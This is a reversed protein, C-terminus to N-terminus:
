IISDKINKNKIITLLELEYVVTTYPHIIGTSSGMKGFALQSPIIFKTKAGENMLSIANELGKIVQGEQGLVFQLPQAYKYTSEFEVGNLFYGKYHIIVEDGPVACDGAGQKIPLYYMGGSEMSFYNTNCTDLFLKLKNIENLEKDKILLQYKNLEEVYEEKNLIRHLTVDMKVVDGHKLFMPLPAKFFKKFLSDANVIYSYIDGENMKSIGEEFSGHFSPSVNYPLIVMGTENYSYTDLFISDKITKYTISLQLYNDKSPKIM